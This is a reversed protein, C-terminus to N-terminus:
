GREVRLACGARVDGTTLAFRRARGDEQKATVATKRDAREDRPQDDAPHREGAVQYQGAHARMAGAIVSASALRIEANIRPESARPVKKPPKRASWMSPRRTITMENRIEAGAVM